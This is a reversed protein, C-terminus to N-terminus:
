FHIKKLVTYIVSNYFVLLFNGIVGLLTDHLNLASNIQIGLKTYFSILRERYIFGLIM